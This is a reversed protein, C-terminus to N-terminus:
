CAGGKKTAYLTGPLAPRRKYPPRKYFEIGPVSALERKESAEAQLKGNDVATIIFPPPVKSADVVRFTWPRGLCDPCEERTKHAYHSCRWCYVVGPENQEGCCHCPMKTTNDPVVAM